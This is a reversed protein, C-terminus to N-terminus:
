VICQEHLKKVNDVTSGLGKYCAAPDKDFTCAAYQLMSVNMKGAICKANAVEANCGNVLSAFDGENLNVCKPIDNPVGDACKDIAAQTIGPSSRQIGLSMCSGFLQMVESDAATENLALVPMSIMGAIIVILIRRTSNGTMVKM